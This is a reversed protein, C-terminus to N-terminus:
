SKTMLINVVSEFVFDRTFRCARAFEKIFFMVQESNDIDTTHLVFANYSMLPVPESSETPKSLELMIDRTENNKFVIYPKPIDGWVYSGVFLHYIVELFKIQEQNLMMIFDINEVTPRIDNSVFNLGVTHSVTMSSMILYQIIIFM